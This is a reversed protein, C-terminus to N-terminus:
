FVEFQNKLMFFDGFTELISEIQEKIYMHKTKIAIIDFNDTIATHYLAAHACDNHVIFFTDVRIHGSPLPSELKELLLDRADNDIYFVSYDGDGADQSLFIEEMAKMARKRSLAKAFEKTHVEDYLTQIREDRSKPSTLINANDHLKQIITSATNSFSAVNLSM